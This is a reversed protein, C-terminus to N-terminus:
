LDAGTYMPKAPYCFASMRQLTSRGDSSVHGIYQKAGMDGSMWTAAGTLAGSATVAQLGNNARYANVLAILDSQSSAAGYGRDTLTAAAAPVAASRGLTVIALLLPLARRLM